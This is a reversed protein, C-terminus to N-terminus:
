EASVLWRRLVAELEGAGVPKILFDDMGAVLCRQREDEAISATMAIIPIRGSEERSRWAATTQAGDMGPMHCDMLVAHFGGRALAELADRGTAAVDPAFDLVELLGCTVMQNVEDDEVVLVRRGPGPDQQTVGGLVTALAQYLAAVRVPKALVALDGLDSRARTWAPALVVVAPASLEPDLPLRAVLEMPSPGVISDAVLVVDYPLGRSTARRLADLLQGGSRVEDAAVGWRGLQQCLSGTVTASPDAVLVRVALPNTPLPTASDDGAVLPLEAWFRSGEGLTSEVGITGGMASVLEKSIALGLGTGGFRRTTSTDAQHFPEFVGARDAEGIGIGTDIVEMLLREHGPDGVPRLRVLVEGAGTFKVANGALNLLVQRLRAPDGRLTRPLEPSCCAVLELGKEQASHALLDAVEEALSVPDFDTTELQLRGAEARSFDLLENLITLLSEGASLIGDAYRRQRPELSTGRLLRALGIVGSMPTRIEHSMTALFASKARSAALAADHAQELEVRANGLQRLLRAIRVYALLLLIMLSILPEWPSVPRGQANNLLILLPPVALPAVGIILVTIGINTNTGPDPCRAMPPVMTAIAILWSASMYILDSTLELHDHHPFALVILDAILWGGVGVTLWATVVRRSGVSAFSRLLLAMLVADGVPYGALVIQRIGNIDPDGVIREISLSYFIMMSVTVVTLTDLFWEFRNENNRATALRNWIAGGILVLSLAWFVEGVRLSLEPAGHCDHLYYLLDGLASVTVGGAILRPALRARSVRAAGWIALASSAWVASLYPYWGDSLPDQVRWVLLAVAVM